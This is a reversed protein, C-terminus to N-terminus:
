EEADIRTATDQELRASTEPDLGLLHALQALYVREGGTVQEDARVIAFALTYLDARLAPDTVGVVIQPLPVPQEIERAVISEVGAERANALISEREPDSLTGDARAASVTLRVVRLLGEPITPPSTTAPQSAAPVAAATRLPPETSTPGPPTSSTAQPPTGAAPWAAGRTADTDTPVPARGQQTATEYLGWAMGALALLTKGNLLGGRRTLMRQVRRSRKRRGTLAGKIISGILQEADFSVCGEAQTRVQCTRTWVREIM